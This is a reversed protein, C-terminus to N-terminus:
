DIDLSFGYKQAIRRATQERTERSKVVVAKKEPKTETVTQAPKAEVPKTEVAKPDAPMTEIVAPKAAVPKIEAPKAEEPKTEVSKADAPASEAPKADSKVNRTAKLKEVLSQVAHDDSASPAVAAGQAQAGTVAIIIAATALFFRM